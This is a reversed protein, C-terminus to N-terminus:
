RTHPISTQLTDGIREPMVLFNLTECQKVVNYIMNYDSKMFIQTLNAVVCFLTLILFVVNNTVRIPNLDSLYALVQKENPQKYGELGPLNKELEHM